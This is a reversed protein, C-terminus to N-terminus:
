EGFKAKLRLFTAREDAEQRKKDAAKRRRNAEQVRKAAALRREIEQPTEYRYLILNYERDGDWDFEVVVKAQAWGDAEETLHAIVEPVTMGDIDLHRTVAEVLRPDNASM